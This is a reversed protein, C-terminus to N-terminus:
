RYYFYLEMEVLGQATAWTKLGSPARKFGYQTYNEAGVLDGQFRYSGFNTMTTNHLLSNKNDPTRVILFYPFPGIESSNFLTKLTTNIVEKSHECAMVQGSACTFSSDEGVFSYELCYNVLERLQDQGRDVYCGTSMSLVSDMSSEALLKYKEGRDVDEDRDPMLAQYQSYVLIGVIIVVFLLAIGFIEGQSKKM